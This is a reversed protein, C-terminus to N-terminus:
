ARLAGQFLKRLKKWVSGAGAQKTAGPHTLALLQKAAKQDGPAMAMAEEALTRAIALDGKLQHARSLMVLIDVRQPEIERAQEIAAIAGPYDAKRELVQALFLFAATLRTVKEIAQRALTEAEDLNGQRMELKGLNIKYNPHNPNLEVSLRAATIAEEFGSLRAFAMSRTMYFYAKELGAEVLLALLARYPSEASDVDRTVIYDAVQKRLPPNHYARPGLGIMQALVQAAKDQAGLAEASKFAPFLFDATAKDGLSLVCELLEAHQGQDQLVIIDFLTVGKEAVTDTYNEVVRDMIKGVFDSRVHALDNEFIDHKRTLMVSEYSPFYDVGHRRSVEGAVARLISKSFLNAVIVDDGSFTRNLSVPSTTIIIKIAPNAARVLEISRSIYDFSQDYGMQLFGYRGADARMRPTPIDQIFLGNKSDFWCEIHGLTLVFVDASALKRYLQFFENRRELAREPSVGVFGHLQTDIVRGETDEVLFPAIDEASLAAIGRQHHRLNFEIEQYIAAPTYKNLLAATNQGILEAEPVVFHAAPVDYGKASLHKEINRAFCSGITFIVDDAKIEFGPSVAPFVEPLLRNRAGSLKGHPNRSALVQEVPIMTVGSGKQEAM